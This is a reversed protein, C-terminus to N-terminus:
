KITPLSHPSGNPHFPVHDDQSSIHNGAKLKCDYYCRCVVANKCAGIAYYGHVRQCVHICTYRECPALFQTDSCIPAILSEVGVTVLFVLFTYRIVSTYM